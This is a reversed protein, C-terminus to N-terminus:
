VVRRLITVELRPEFLPSEREKELDLSDVGEDDCPLLPYTDLGCGTFSSSTSTLPKQVVVRIMPPYKHFPKRIRERTEALTGVFALYEASTSQSSVVGTWSGLM